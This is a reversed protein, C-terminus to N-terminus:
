PFMICGQRAGSDITFCGSEDGNVILCALCNVYMSKNDNLLKGGLNYMKLVQWLVERNIRDCSNEQDM